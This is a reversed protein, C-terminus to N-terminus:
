RKCVEDLIKRGAQKLESVLDKVSQLTLDKSDVLRAEASRLEPELTAWRQRTEMGALHIQVQIEDRLTRLEGLAHDVQQRLDQRLESM